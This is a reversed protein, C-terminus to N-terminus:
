WTEMATEIHTQQESLIGRPVHHLGISRPRKTTAIGNLDFIANYMCTLCHNIQSHDSSCSLKDHCTAFHHHWPKVPNSWSKPTQLFWGPNKKITLLFDTSSGTPPDFTSIEITNLSSVAIMGLHCKSLIMNLFFTINMSTRVFSNDTMNQIMIVKSFRFRQWPRGELPCTKQNQVKSQRSKSTKKKHELLGFFWVRKKSM